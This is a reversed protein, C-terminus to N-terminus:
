EGDIPYFRLQLLRLNNNYIQWFFDYYDGSGTIGPLLENTVKTWHAKGKSRDVDIHGVVTYKDNNGVTPDCDVQEFVGEAVEDYCIISDLDMCTGDPKGGAKAYVEYSGDPIVFRALGDTADRDIVQMDPGDSVLIRVGKLLDAVQVDEPDAYGSDGNTLCPNEIWLTRLPVFITHGHTQIDGANGNFCDPYTGPDAQEDMTCQAFGIINLNYHQGNLTESGAFVPMSAMALVALVLLTKKM